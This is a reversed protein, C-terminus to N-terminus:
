LNNDRKKLKSLCLMAIFLITHLITIGLALYFFGVKTEDATFITGAIPPISLFGSFGGLFFIFSAKGTVDFLGATWSLGSAFLFSVFFGMMSTGVYVGIKSTSALISLIIASTVCGLLSALIMTTPKIYKSIVIGSFRGVLFAGYYLTNLLAAEAVSMELPGCLGYTYTMSM